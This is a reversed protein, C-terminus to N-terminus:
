PQLSRVNDIGKVVQTALDTCQADTFHTGVTVGMFTLKNVFQRVIATVIKTEETTLAPSTATM